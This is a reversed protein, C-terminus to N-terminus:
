SFFFHGQPKAIIGTLHLSSATGPRGHTHGVTFRSVVLPLGFSLFLFTQTRSAIFPHQSCSPPKSVYVRRSSDCSQPPGSYDRKMSTRISKILCIPLDRRRRGEGPITTAIYARPRGLTSGMIPVHYEFSKMPTGGVYSASAYHLVATYPFVYGATVIIRRDM